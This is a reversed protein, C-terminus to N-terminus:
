KDKKDRRKGNLYAQIVPKQGEHPEFGIDSLVKGVQIKKRASINPQRQTQKM